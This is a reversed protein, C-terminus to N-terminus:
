EQWDEILVDPIGCATTGHTNLLAVNFLTRDSVTARGLTGFKTYDFVPLVPPINFM